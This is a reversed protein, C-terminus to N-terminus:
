KYKRIELTYSLGTEPLASPGTDSVKSLVLTYGCEMCGISRNVSHVSALIVIM